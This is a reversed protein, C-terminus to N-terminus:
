GFEETGATVDIDCDRLKLFAGNGYDAVTKHPDAGCEDATGISISEASEAMEIDVFADVSEDTIEDFESM